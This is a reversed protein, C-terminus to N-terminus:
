VINNSIKSEAPDNSPDSSQDHLFLCDTTPASTWPYPEIVESNL